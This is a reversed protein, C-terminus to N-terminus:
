RPTVVVYYIRLDIAKPVLGKAQLDDLVHSLIQEKEKFSSEGITVKIGNKLFIIPNHEDYVDIESIQYKKTFQTEKIQQILKLAVRLANSNLRRNKPLLSENVPIGTVIFLDPLSKARPGPLVIMEGSVLYFRGSKLQLAPVRRKFLIAIKDPLVRNVKIDKFQPYAEEAKNKTEKLDLKFININDKVKFNLDYERVPAGKDACFMQVDKVTFYESGLMMNFIGRGIAVLVLAIILLYLNKFFIDVLFHRHKKRKKAANKKAM